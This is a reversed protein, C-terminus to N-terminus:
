PKSIPNKYNQGKRDQEAKALNWEYTNWIGKITYPKLKKTMYHYCIPCMKDKLQLWKDM